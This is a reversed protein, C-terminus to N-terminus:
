CSRASITGTRWASMPAGAERLPFTTDIVPAVPAEVAAALGQGRASCRDGGQVRGTRPRLTSGTHILRKVMLKAFDAQAKPAARPPSRSSAARTRRRGRLQPRCLRRRGHRSHRRRRTGGTAEKVARSSIRADQLQDGPRRRAEPLRRMEGGVRRHRHRTAGFAKALQIATTGIGSSGGHVLLTEGAKLGGREFVNHWVTFFTEPLAAAEILRRLGRCRCPTPRTCRAINPMAAAPRWRASRTASRGASASRASPPSRAPSRSARAHRLRRAAASLQGHRQMVDPRNVGAARVRVLIEGRVQCRCRRAKRADAGDARRAQLHRHRDHDRSHRPEARRQWATAEKTMM